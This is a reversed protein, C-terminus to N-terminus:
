KGILKASMNRSWILSAVYCQKLRADSIAPLAAREWDATEYAIVTSLIEGMTGKRELLADDIENELFLQSLLEPLPTDLLVDLISFLGITFGIDEDAEYEQALLQCFHARQLAIGLLETPKDKIWALAVLICWDKIKKEGLLLLAHHLSNIKHDLDQQESNIVRLLNQSLGPFNQTTIETRLFSLDPNSLDAFLKVLLPAHTPTQANKGADIRYLFDGQFLEYGASKCWEFAQQTEIKDAWLKVRHPRLQEAIKRVGEEDLTRVDIKIVKAVGLLRRQHSSYVRLDVAITYGSVALRRVGEIIEDTIETHELIQLTVRKHSFPVPTSGKLYAAPMSTYAFHDGVLKSIGVQTIANIITPSGSSNHNSLHTSGEEGGRFALEYAVVKMDRGFIPLRGVLPAHRLAVAGENLEPQNMDAIALLYFSKFGQQRM